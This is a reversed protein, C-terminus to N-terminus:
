RRKHEDLLEPHKIPCNDCSCEPFHAWWVKDGITLKSYYMCHRKKDPFAQSYECKKKKKEDIAVLIWGYILVSIFLLAAVGVIIIVILAFLDIM